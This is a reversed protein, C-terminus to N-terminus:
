IYQNLLFLFEDLTIFEAGLSELYETHVQADIMKIDFSNVLFHIAIKSAGNEKSFMSEGFFVQGLMIGYLGGVLQDDKNWVEVSYAFGLRNLETYANLMEDTIWSSEQDKRFIDKCNRIVNPFDENFTCYYLESDILKRLSKSVKFKKPFLVFRPDPAHWIIPDGESFWPFIGNQYALLLRDPSLDGGVALVGQEALRPDPFVLEDTLLYVPM